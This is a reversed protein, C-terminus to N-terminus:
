WDPEVETLELDNNRAIEAVIREAQDASQYSWPWVIIDPGYPKGTGKEGGRVRWIQERGNPTNNGNIVQVAAKKAM